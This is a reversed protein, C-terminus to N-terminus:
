VAASTLRHVQHAIALGVREGSRGDSFACAEHVVRTRGARDLGPDALYDRVHDILQAPTHAVRVAGAEVVPRYHEYAFYRRISLPLPVDDIPDFGINIVPTDFICAEITTTSAFNILVDSHALTAALHARDTLNPALSDFDAAADSAELRTISRDVIVHPLGKLRAYSGLVDRPHL